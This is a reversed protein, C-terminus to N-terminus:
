YDRHRSNELERDARAILDGASESSTHEAFGTTIAAAVPATALAAAIASFWERVERLTVDAM